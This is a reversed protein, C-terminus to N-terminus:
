RLTRFESLVALALNVIESLDLDTIEGPIQQAGRVGEVVKTRLNEDGLARRLDQLDWGDEMASVIFLAIAGAAKIVDDTQQIGAM